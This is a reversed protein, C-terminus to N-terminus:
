AGAFTRLLFVALWILLWLAAAIGAVGLLSWWYMDRFAARAGSKGSVKREIDANSWGVFLPLAILGVATVWIAINLYFGIYAEMTEM